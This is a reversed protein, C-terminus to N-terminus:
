ADAYEFLVSFVIAAAAMTDSATGDRFIEHTVEDDVAFNAALTISAEQLLNVSGGATDTVTASEQTGAQDLSEGVAVARYDYDWVVDGTTATSTWRIILKPSGVYNKPVVFGGRLGDRTSSDNFIAVLREWVDNTAKVSYPEFFVEGSDDPITGAGLIPIRHTAM